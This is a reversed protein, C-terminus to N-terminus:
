SYFVNLVTVAVGDDAKLVGARERGGVQVVDCRGLVVAGLQSRTGSRVFCVDQALEDLAAYRHAAKGGRSCRQLLDEELDVAALVFWCPRSVMDRCLRLVTMPNSNKRVTFFLRKQIVVKAMGAARATTNARTMM